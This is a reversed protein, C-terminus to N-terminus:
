RTQRASLPRIHDVQFAGRVVTNETRYKVEYGWGAFQHCFELVGIVVGSVWLNMDLMVEVRQNLDLNVMVHMRRRRAVEPTASM